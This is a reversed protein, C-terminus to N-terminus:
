PTTQGPQDPPNGNPTLIRFSSEPLGSRQMRERIMIEEAEREDLHTEITTGSEGLISTLTRLGLKYAERADQSAYGADVTLIPPTSFSWRLMGGLDKGKYEPILGLKIAKSIAYGVRRRAVNRIVDQRDKVTRNVKEVVIRSPAGGADPKIYFEPPMGAGLMANRQLRDMLRETAESPVNNQMQELKAGSNARFYRVLGGMFTESQIGTVPAASDALGYQPDSPDAMGLENWEILGISAAIKAADRVYGQVTMLDRLELVAPTFAPFGRVQDQTRPDALYDMSRASVWKDEEETEGLVHFAVTRGFANLVAGNYERLGKYPGKSIVPENTRSGIAHWPIQQFQPFGTETETYITACDGDRDMAVCDLYLGTIFDIGNVYAVNYFDQLWATAVKGWEKDDGEFKPQWARGIAYIAKDEIAGHVPGFNWYLRNCSSVITKWESVSVEKQIGGTNTQWYPSAFQNGGGIM